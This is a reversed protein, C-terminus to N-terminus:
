ESTLWAEFCKHCALLAASLGEGVLAKGFYVAPAPLSAASSRAKVLAQVAASTTGTSAVVDAQSKGAHLLALSTYIRGNKLNHRSVFRYPAAFFTDWHRGPVARKLTLGVRATALPPTGAATCVGYICFSAVHDCSYYLGSCDAPARALSLCFPKAPLLSPVAEGSADVLSAISSHGTEALIFDVIKCPGEVIVAADKVSRISRLLIGGAM